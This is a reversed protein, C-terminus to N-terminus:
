RAAARCAGAGIGGAGADSGDGGGGVFIEDLSACHGRRMRSETTGHRSYRDLSFPEDAEARCNYLAREKWKDIAANAGLESFLTPDPYLARIEIQRVWVQRRSGV